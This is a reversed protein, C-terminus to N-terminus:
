AVQGVAGCSRCARSGFRPSFKEARRRDEEEVRGDNWTTFSLYAVGLTVVVLAAIAAAHNLRTLFLM